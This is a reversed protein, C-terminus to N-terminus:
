PPGPAERGGTTPPGSPPSAERRHLVAAAAVQVVGAAAFVAAGSGTADRLLGFLAPAFAYAAQNVATVLAVVRGVDAADFESQAILPPLSVLNGVGLGFLVCGALLLATGEAGALLLCLSGLVQVGINLVAARRRQEEGKLLAALISRGAVACVTLLSMALGAGMAGLAPAMLSFLHAILGVQAFVAISFGASLTAFRRDRWVARGTALRPRPTRPAPPAADETAGDVRQGLRTPTDRLVTLALGGMVGLLLLAVLPAAVTFGLAAILAAWLPTFVVGGMSAGNYAMSLAPARRRDFWPAVIANVAAGSTLAWGTGTFLAALFLWGPYPALAWGCLGLATAAAGFGVVRAVGFRADLAPFRAVALAGLLFHATIAASVLSVSWGREAHLAALYVGPGYFGVGWALLAVTFAAWVARWGHFPPTSV